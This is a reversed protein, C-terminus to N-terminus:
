HLLCSLPDPERRRLYCPAHRAGPLGQFQPMPEGEERSLGWNMQSRLQPAPAALTGIPNRGRLPAVPPGAGLYPHITGPKPSCDRSVSGGREKGRRTPKCLQPDPDDEWPSTSGLSPAPADLANRERERSPAPASGLQRRPVGGPSPSRAM